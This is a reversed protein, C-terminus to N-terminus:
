SISTAPRESASSKMQMLANTIYKTLLGTEERTNPLLCLFPQNFPADQFHAGRCGMTSHLLPFNFMVATTRLTCSGCLDTVLRSTLAESASQPKGREKTQWWDGSYDKTYRNCGDVRQVRGEEYVYMHVRVCVCLTMCMDTSHHSCRTMKRHERNMWKGTWQNELKNLPKNAQGNVWKNIGKYGNMWKNIDKSILM